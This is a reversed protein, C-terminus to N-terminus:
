KVGVWWQKFIQTSDKLHVAEGIVPTVLPLGAKKNEETIRNLPEDWPHIALSFKSSHVPFVRKAKLDKAAVLVEEPMMHIYKWNQNYQGNELFVLDFPGFKNGIDAFHTDYGSDGGIYIKMTPTQLVYSMWLSKNRQFGRGSFHRAPTTHIIFGDGANITENWDQEYINKVDFGWYEFHAGVGLGCIIKKTKSKLQTVTTYDLHDYHDHTIILYDIEPLDNITYRDTGKFSKTTGPLPSANGSFVPDILFTKGDIQMFYSSHGFWVLVDENHPLHLLDTKMSPITGAPVKRPHKGFLFNFMVSTMNAGETLSPTNHINQFQGNRYNPSKIIRELRKGAPLKGFKTQRMFLFTSFFLILLIAAILATIRKINRFSRKATM